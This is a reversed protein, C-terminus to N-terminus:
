QGSSHVQGLPDIDNYTDKPPFRLSGQHTIYFSKFM